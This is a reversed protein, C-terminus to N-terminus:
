ATEQQSTQGDSTAPTQGSASAVELIAAKIRPYCGCRCINGAMANEVETPSPTPNADLLAAASMIQGSQCYGCQPVSRLSWVTQLPHPSDDTGLGEITRVERGAVAAIPLICTRVAEGDVHMTCAGCLGAGCGYKSGKLKFTDRVTWLLPTDPADSTEVRRGNLVFGIVANDEPEAESGTM